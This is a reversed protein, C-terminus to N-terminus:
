KADVNTQIFFDYLGSAVYHCHLRYVIMAHLLRLVVFLWKQLSSYQLVLLWMLVALTCVPHKLRYTDVRFSTWWIYQVM